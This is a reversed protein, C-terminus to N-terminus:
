ISVLHGYCGRVVSERVREFEIRVYGKYHREGPPVKYHGEAVCRRSIVRERMNIMIKM